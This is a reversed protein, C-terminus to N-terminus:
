KKLRKKQFLSDRKVFQPTYENEYKLNTKNFNESIKSFGTVDDEEHIQQVDNWWIKEM